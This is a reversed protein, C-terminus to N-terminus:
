SCEEAARNSTCSELQSVCRGCSASETPIWPVPLALPETLIVPGDAKWHVAEHENVSSLPMVAVKTAWGIAPARNRPQLPAQVPVAAQATVSSAAFLMAARNPTARERSVIETEPLPVTVLEGPPM